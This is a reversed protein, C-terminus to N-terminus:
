PAAGEQLRVKEDLATDTEGSEVELRRKEAAGSTEPAPVTVPAKQKIKVLRENDM